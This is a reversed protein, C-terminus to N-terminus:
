DARDKATLGGHLDVGVIEGDKPGAHTAAVRVLLNEGLQLGAGRAQATGGRHPLEVAVWAGVDMRLRHDLAEAGPVGRLAPGAQGRATERRPLLEKVLEARETGLEAPSRGAPVELAVARRHVRLGREPVDEARKAVRQALGTEVDRQAFLPELARHIV